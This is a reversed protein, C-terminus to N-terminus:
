YRRRNQNIHDIYLHRQPGEQNFYGMAKHYLARENHKMNYYALEQMSMVQPLITEFYEKLGTKYYWISMPLGEKKELESKRRYRLSEEFKDVDPDLFNYRSKEAFFLYDTYFNSQILIHKVEIFVEVDEYTTWGPTDIPNKKRINSNEFYVSELTNFRPDLTGIKGYELPPLAM